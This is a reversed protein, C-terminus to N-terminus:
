LEVMTQLELAVSPLEGPPPGSRALEEVMAAAADVEAETNFVHLSLRTCAADPITRAVIRGREWLCATVIGAPVSPLSFSVLGSVVAEENAPSVLRLDPIRALRRTAYRGLHVAREMVADLGIGEIFQVAALLGALLPVSVTTMEFKEITDSKPEFRGAFDYFHAAHHAVKPAQLREILDRRVYLAGTAAPGLLWKHGPFACFDCDLERVDVPMQGVSQAADLLIYGGHEHVLRSIGAIPLLQGSGYTLHSLIILRTAPTIADNFRSLIEADSDEASVPVIKASTGFRERSYYFPVVVSPHEASCTIVEEGPKLGLGGVVINIGETTNQQLTIEQPTANIVGAMARRAARFLDLRKQNAPPATPGASEMAFTEQVAAIVSRPCPGQWGSNLYALSATAPIEARISDVEPPALV